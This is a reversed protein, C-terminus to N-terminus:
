RSLLKPLTMLGYAGRRRHPVRARTTLSKHHRARPSVPAAEKYTSTVVQSMAWSVAGRRDSLRGMSTAQSSMHSWTPCRGLCRVETSRCNASTPFRHLRWHQRPVEGSFCWRGVTCCNNLIARLLTRPPHQPSSKPISQYAKLQNQVAKLVEILNVCSILGVRWQM